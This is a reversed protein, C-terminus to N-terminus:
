YKDYKEIMNNAMEEVHDIVCIAWESLTVKIDCVDSFFLNSTPYSTGSFLLTVKCFIELRECIDPALKWDDDNPCCKYQSDKLKLRCFVSKYEIANQLMLFTSNWRSPCDLSLKRDYTIGLQRTADEFKEERKPSVTWYAVSDRVKEISSKIVDLGDTLILNLIHAACRVHFFGKFWIHDGGFKDLLINVMANNTTCNDVILTSLKRDIDWELITEMLMECLVEATHPCPVYVFRAIPEGRLKLKIKQFHLWVDSRVSSTDVIEDGESTYKKTVDDCIPPNSNMQSESIENSEVQTSMKTSVSCDDSDAFKGLTPIKRWPIEYGNKVFAFCVLGSACVVCSEIRMTM